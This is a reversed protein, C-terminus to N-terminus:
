SKPVAEFRIDKASLVNVMENSFNSILLSVGTVGGDIFQNALLFGELGFAASFVGVVIFIGDRINRRLEIKLNRYHRARVYRSSTSASNKM